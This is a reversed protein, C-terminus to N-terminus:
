IWEIKIGNKECQMHNDPRGVNRFKVFFNIVYRKLKIYRKHLRPKTYRKYQSSGCGIKLKDYIRASSGCQM